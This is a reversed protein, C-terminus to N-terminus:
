ELGMLTYEIDNDKDLNNPISYQWTIAKVVAMQANMLSHIANDQVLNDAYSSAKHSLVLDILDAFKRKVEDVKVNNSPNFSIGALKEGQTMKTM